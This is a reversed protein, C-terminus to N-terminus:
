LIKAHSRTQDPDNKPHKPDIRNKSVLRVRLKKMGRDDITRVAIKFRARRAAQDAFYRANTPLTISNGPQMKELLEKIRLTLPNPNGWRSVPIDTEIQPEGIAIDLLEADESTMKAKM